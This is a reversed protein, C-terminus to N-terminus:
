ETEERDEGDIRFVVENNSFEVKNVYMGTMKNIEALAKIQAQRDHVDMAERYVRLLRTIQKEKLREEQKTSIDNLLNYAKNYVYRVSQSNWGYAKVLAPNIEPFTYGDIMLDYVQRIVQQSIEDNNIGTMKGYNKKDYGKIPEITIQAM